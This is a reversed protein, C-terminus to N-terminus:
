LALYCRRCAASQTEPQLSSSFNEGFSERRLECGRNLASGEKAQVGGVGKKEISSSGLKRAWRETVPINVSKTVIASRLKLYM